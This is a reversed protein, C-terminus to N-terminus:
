RTSGERKKALVKIRYSPVGTAARVADRINARVASSAGGEAVILVGKISPRLARTTVPMETGNERQMPLEETIKEEVTVVGGERETMSRKEHTRNKEHEIRKEEEIQVVVDVAGAGDVASLIRKLKDEWMTEETQHLDDTGAHEAVAGRAPEAEFMPAGIMLLLGLAGVLLLRPYRELMAYLKQWIYRVNEMDKENM